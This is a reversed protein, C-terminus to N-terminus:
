HQSEEELIATKAFSRIVSVAFVYTSFATVLPFCHRMPFLSCMYLGSVNVIIFAAASVLSCAHIIRLVCPPRAADIMDFIARDSLVQAGRNGLKLM